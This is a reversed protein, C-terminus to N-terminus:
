AKLWCSGLEWANLGVLSPLHAGYVHLEGIVGLSLARATTRPDTKLKPPHRALAPDAAAYLAAITGEASDDLRRVFDLMLLFERSRKAASLENRSRAAVNLEHGPRSLLSAVSTAIEVMQPSAQDALLSGAPGGWGPGSRASPMGRLGLHSLRTPSLEDALQQAVGPRGWAGADRGSHLVVWGLPGADFSRAGARPEHLGKGLWGIDADGTEFARLADSLDRAPEARIRDLFAAGRAANDNRTLTIGDRAVLAQYAGTGDPRLSTFGQPVIATIPSSLTNALADPKAGRFILAHASKPDVIPQVFANLWAIGGSAAARRLAFVVDRPGLPKGLATRLGSRMVVRAGEPVTEPLSAALAPFAAGAKDKAYLTDFLTPAFLASAVDDLTHPDLGALGVPLKLRLAGGYKPPTLGLAPAAACALALFSRRGLASSRPTRNM